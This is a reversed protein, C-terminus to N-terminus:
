AVRNVKPHFYFCRFLKCGGDRQLRNCLDPHGLDCDKNGCIGTRKFDTCIDKHLKDCDDRYKCQCITYYWCEELNKKNKIMKLMTMWAKVTSKPRQTKIQNLFPNEQSKQNIEKIENTM